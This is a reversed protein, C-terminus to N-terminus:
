QTRSSAASAIWGACLPDTLVLCMLICVFGEEPYSEALAAPRGSTASGSLGCAPAPALSKLEVAAAETFVRSRNLFRIGEPAELSFAASRGPVVDIILQTHERCEFQAVSM